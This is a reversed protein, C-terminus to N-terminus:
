MFHVPNRVNNKWAYLFFVNDYSVYAHISITYALTIQKYYKKYTYKHM